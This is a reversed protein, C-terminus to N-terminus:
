AAVLEPGRRRLRFLCSDVTGKPIDMIEAIQRNSPALRVRRLEDAATHYSDETWRRGASEPGALRRSLCYRMRERLKDARSTNVMRRGREVLAPLDDRGTSAALVAVQTDDIECCAKVAAVAIDDRMTRHTITRAEWPEDPEDHQTVTLTQGMAREARFRDRERGKRRSFDLWQWKLITSWYAAFPRGIDAYQGILRDMKPRVYLYFESCEDERAGKCIPYRYTHMEIDTRCPVATANDSHVTM